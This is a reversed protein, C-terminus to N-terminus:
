HCRHRSAWQAASGRTEAYKDSGGKYYGGEEISQAVVPPVWLHFPEGSRIRRRVETSSIDVGVGEILEIHFRDPLHLVETGPRRVALFRVSTALRDADKWQPLGEILDSGIIWYLQVTPYEALYEQVTEVTYSVRGRRVERDDVSCRTWGSLAMRVWKVRVLGPAYPEREKFPSHCAPIFVVWEVRGSRLAAEALMLHGLHIPDFSGGLLGLSRVYSPIQVGSFKESKVQQRKLCVWDKSGHDVM